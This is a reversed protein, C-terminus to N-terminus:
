RRHYQRNKPPFTPRPWCKVKLGRDATRGSPKKNKAGDWKDGKKRKRSRREGEM